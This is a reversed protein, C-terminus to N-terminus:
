FGHGEEVANALFDEAQVGCDGDGNAFGDAVSGDGPLTDGLARADYETGVGYVAAWVKPALSAVLVAGLAPDIRILLAVLRIVPIPSRRRIERLNREQMALACTYALIKRTSFEPTRNRSDDPPKLELHLIRVLHNLNPPRHRCLGYLPHMQPHPTHLTPSKVLAHNSNLNNSENDDM